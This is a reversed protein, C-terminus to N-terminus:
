LGIKELEEIRNLANVLKSKIMTGQDNRELRFQNFEKELRQVQAKLQQNESTLAVNASKLEDLKALVRGVKDELLQLVDSM